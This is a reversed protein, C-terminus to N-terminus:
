GRRNLTLPYSKGPKTKFEWSQDGCVVRCPLGSKSHIVAKALHGDAWSM